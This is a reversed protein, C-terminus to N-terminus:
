RRARRFSAAVLWECGAAALEAGHPGPHAHGASGAAASCSGLLFGGAELEDPSYFLVLLLPHEARVAEFNEATLALM